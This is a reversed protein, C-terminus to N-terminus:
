QFLRHGDSEDMGCPLQCQFRGSRSGGLNWCTFWHCVDALLRIGIGVHCPGSSPLLVDVQSPYQPWLLPLSRQWRHFHPGCFCGAFLEVWACKTRLVEWSIQLVLLLGRSTHSYCVVGGFHDCNSLGLLRLEDWFYTDGSRIAFGAGPKPDSGRTNDKFQARYDKSIHLLKDIERLADPRTPLMGDGHCLIGCWICDHCWSGGIAASSTSNVVLACHGSDFGLLVTDTVGSALHWGPWLEKRRFSTWVFIWALLWQCFGWEDIDLLRVIFFSHSLSNWLPGSSGHWHDEHRDMGVKGGIYACFASVDICLDAGSQFWWEFWEGHVEEPGVKACNAGAEAAAGGAAHRLKQKEQFYHRSTSLPQPTQPIVLLHQRRTKEAWCIKIEIGVNINQLAQHDPRHGYKWAQM